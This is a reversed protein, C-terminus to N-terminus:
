HVKSFHKVSNTNDNFLGSRRHKVPMGIDRVINRYKNHLAAYRQFLIGYPKKHGNFACESHNPFPAAIACGPRHSNAKTRDAEWEM